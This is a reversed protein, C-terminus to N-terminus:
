NQDMDFDGDGDIIKYVTVPNIVIPLIKVDNM